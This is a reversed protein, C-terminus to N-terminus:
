YKEEILKVANLFGNDDIHDTIHTAVAKLKDTGNGMAISVDVHKFMDVDNDGDGIAFTRLQQDGIYKKIGLGKSVGEPVVEVNVGTSSFSYVDDYKDMKLTLEEAHYASITEVKTIEIDETFVEDLKNFKIDDDNIYGCLYEEPNEIQKARGFKQEMIETAIKNLNADSNYYKGKNTYVAVYGSKRLLVKAIKEAQEKNMTSRHVLKGERMIEGGNAGIYNVNIGLKAIDHAARGSVIVYEDESNELKDIIDKRIETGIEAITGDVDVCILKKM